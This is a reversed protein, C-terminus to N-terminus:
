QKCNKSSISRQVSTNMCLSHRSFCETNSDTKMVTVYPCKKMIKGIKRNFSEGETNVCSQDNMFIM